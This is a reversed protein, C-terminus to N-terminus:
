VSASYSSLSSQAEPPLQNILAALQGGSAKIQLGVFKKVDPIDSTPDFPKTAVTSLQAFSSGFTVEEDGDLTSEILANSNDYVGVLSDSQMLNLLALCGATWRQYYLQRFSECEFLFRSLGVVAIKKDLLTHFKATTPIVFQGFVEGFIGSQAEDLFEISFDPGLGKEPSRVSSLFYLLRSLRILLKETRSSQLRQLILIAISRVYKRIQDIPICYFITELLDFGYHDNARSALLKQFVGLLPEVLGQSTFLDAKRSLMAQLLRTLAPVNGRTEWLTPAMMPRVLQSYTDSLPADAPLTELMQSLLQFVYPTFETIDQSLINLFVPFLVNDYAGPPKSHGTFRIVAGISEFTYHSFKPNSPNKSTEAVIGALQQIIMNSYPEIAERSTVIVRMVCRMLFENEALKEPTDGKEILQFLSTLLQEAVPSVDEKGFLFTPATSGPASSNHRISLIREITIAAYTYVVYETSSFMSTLVPFAEMLQQKTLQNRFTHIFKIADVKLIPHTIPSFLDPAINQSFFGVVDLLLNTASVGSATVTGKVAVSSFLYVATDKSRWHSQKDTAYQQLYHQVYAMVVETVLGEFREKLERLFDTAARRRTDSDSGELDRRIYEIPDDEFLEIDSERLSMNPLVIKEVVQQLVDKSSFVQAREPSKTVTTLFSLAKSILLDYKPEAGTSTLLTWTTQIFNQLLPGFVDEYRQSYLQILECIAAKVLEQPGSEDDEDTDLIPNKYELYKHVLGMLTSLNDEFFEPIDQCNLDFFIKIILLLSQFLPGLAAKNNQNDTILKDTTQFLTMFPVCFKDLVLKIELFLADSRYLPRWRKFISHAVQLVGNNVVIDTPSLRSVLDDILNQWREPFDSDAMISIAEGLQVQLSPPLVIMLGIIESKVANVDEIPIRYNGDEGTWKRRIFNKFFLAGALRTTQPFDNSAVIQLLLISFGAQQEATRLSQEAQKATAPNLSSNLLLALNQLDEMSAM